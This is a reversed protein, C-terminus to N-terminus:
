RHEQTYEREKQDLLAFKGAYKMNVLSIESGKVHLLEQVQRRKLLTRRREWDPVYTAFGPATNDTYIAKMARNTDHLEHIRAALRTVGLKKIALISNISGWREIYDIVSQQQPSFKM